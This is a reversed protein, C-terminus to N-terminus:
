CMCITTSTTTFGAPRGTQPQALGCITHHPFLIVSSTPDYPFTLSFSPSPRPWLPLAVMLNLTTIRANHILSSPSLPSTSHACASFCRTSLLCNNRQMMFLLSNFAFLQLMMFLLSNFAYLPQSIFNAAQPIRAFTAERLTSVSDFANLRLLLSIRESNM